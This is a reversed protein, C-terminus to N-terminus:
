VLTRHFRNDLATRDKVSQKKTKRKCDAGEAESSSVRHNRTPPVTTRRQSM